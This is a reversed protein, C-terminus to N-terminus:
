MGELAIRNNELKYKIKKEEGVKRYLITKEDSNFRVTVDTLTELLALEKENHMGEEVLLMITSDSNKLKTINLELFEQLENLKNHLLLTSLSDFIIRFPGNMSRLLKTLAISIESLAYPGSVRLVLDEDSKAIGSHLTYCDIIRFNRAGNNERLIRDVVSEPFTNSVVYLTSENKRMGDALFQQALLSKEGRPKGIVLASSKVPFLEIEAM